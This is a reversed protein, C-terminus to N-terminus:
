AFNKQKFYADILQTKMMGKFLKFAKGGDDGSLMCKGHSTNAAAERHIENVKCRKVM